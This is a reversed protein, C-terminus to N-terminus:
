PQPLAIFMCYRRDNPTEEPDLIAQLSLRM